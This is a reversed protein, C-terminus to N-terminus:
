PTKTIDQTLLFEGRVVTRLFGAFDIQQIDYFFEGVNDANDTTLTFTVEGALGDTIIGNLQFIHTTDDTPSELSDVTMVFSGGAINVPAGDIDALVFTFPYTDGRTRELDVVSVLIDTM